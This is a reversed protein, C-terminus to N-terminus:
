EIISWGYEVDIGEAKADELEKMFQEESAVVGESNTYRNCCPCKTVYKGEDMNCHHLKHTEMAKLAEALTM